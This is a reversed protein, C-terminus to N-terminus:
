CPSSASQPHIPLRLPCSTTTRELANSRRESRSIQFRPIGDGSVAANQVPFCIFFRRKKSHVLSTHRDDVSISVSHTYCVPEGSIKLGSLSVLEPVVTPLLRFVDCNADDVFFPMFGLHKIPGISFALCRLANVNQHPLRIHSIPRRPVLRFGFDSDAGCLVTLRPLFDSSDVVGFDPPHSPGHHNPELGLYRLQTQSKLFALFATDVPLTSTFAKLQFKCRGLVSAPWSGAFISGFNPRILLSLQKLAFLAYLTRALINFFSRTFVKTEAGYHLRFEVVFVRVYDSIRPIYCIRRCTKVLGVINKVTLTHYLLCEAERQTRRSVRAVSCLDPPLRLEQFIQGVLEVPLSKMSTPSFRHRHTM